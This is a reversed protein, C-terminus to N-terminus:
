ECLANTTTQHFEGRGLRVGRKVTTPSKHVGVGHLVRSDGVHGVALALHHVVLPVTAVIVIIGGVLFLLLWHNTVWGLAQSLTAGQRGPAVTSLGVSCRLYLTQLRLQRHLNTRVKLGM